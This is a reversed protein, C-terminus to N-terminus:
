FRYALEAGWIRPGNVFAANSSFDVVGIVNEEDTINRAFLGIEFNKTTHRFGARMGGEFQPDTHFEESEYLVLNIEGWYRWDTFFYLEKDDSLPYTYSLEANLTFDPVSQFNNNNIIARGNANLPDTVTCQNCVGVAISDDNIETDIYSFGGSLILNETAAYDVEIEVGYGIGEDANLLTVLNGDGGIAVLQMDEIDYYFAAANLRIRDNLEAKYGIEYSLVTESDTTTLTGGFAVSRASLSPARFGAAIRSYVQSDDNLAYALTVNWSINDDKLTTPQLDALSFVSTFDKEDETYRVGATLTLRDNIEYEGQGFIAWATNQMLEDNRLVLDFPAPGNGVETSQQLEDDFYYGGVHYNFPGDLQSAIRIEQIVQETSRRGGTDTSIFINGPFTLAPGLYTPPPTVIIAFGRNVSTFGEPVTATFTRDAVGGDIDKRSQSDTSHHSTLSTITHNGVEWTLKLTSAYGQLHDPNKGGGDQAVRDRDFNSNLENSGKDFASAHFAINSNGGLDRRQHMLLASFNDTPTWLLQIRGALENFGGYANEDRTYANEVWDRRNQSLLSVRGTLKGDIITGGIAAEVNLTGLNGASTRFFGETEETPRRSDIRIIGATSNRGYLTGQPGRLVEIDALDFVPFSKQLVGELPVDDMVYSVPQSANLVFEANGLGRMYFKPARRGNSSEAYLGPVSGAIALITEGGRFLSELKQGSLTGISIPVDQINQERKQATVIIEELLREGEEAASVFQGIIFVSILVTAFKKFILLLKKIIM